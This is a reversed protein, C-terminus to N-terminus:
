KLVTNGKKAQVFSKYKKELQATDCKKGDFSEKMINVLSDIDNGNWGMKKVLIRSEKRFKDEGYRTFYNKSDEDGYSLVISLMLHLMADQYYKGEKKLIKFRYYEIKYLYDPHKTTMLNLWAWAKDNMGAKLYYDVLDFWRSQSNLTSNGYVFVKEFVAIIKNLDHDQAYESEADLVTKLDIDQQRHKEELERYKPDKRLDHLVEEDIKESRKAERACSTCLGDSNVVVFFGSKGCNKCKPM